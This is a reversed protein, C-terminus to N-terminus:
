QIAFETFFIEKVSGNGLVGNFVSMLETRILNAAGPKELDQITKTRLTGIAIDMLQDKNSEVKDKIDSNSGVLTFNTLLYRSGLSGAVNVLVKGFQVTPRGNSGGGEKKGGGHEESKKGGEDKPKAHEEKPKAHEEPKKGHAEAPAAEGGGEGEVKEGGEARAHVTAQQLKSVLVFATMVYALVPMMVVTLILPLLAKIGGGGGGGHAAAPAAPPPTKAESM